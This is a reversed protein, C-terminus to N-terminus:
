LGRIDVSIKDSEFEYVPPLVGVEDLGVNTSDDVNIKRDFGGFIYLLAVFLGTWLFFSKFQFKKGKNESDRNANWQAFGSNLNNLFQVM